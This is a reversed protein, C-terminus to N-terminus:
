VAEKALNLIRYDHIAGKWIKYLVVGPLASKLAAAGFIKATSYNSATAKLAVKKMYEEDNRVSNYLDAEKQEVKKLAEKRLSNETFIDLDEKSRSCIVETATSRRISNCTTLQSEYEAKAQIYNSEAQLKAASNTVNVAVASDGSGVAVSTADEKVNKMAAKFSEMKIKAQDAATKATLYSPDKALKQEVLMAEKAKIDAIKKNSELLADMAEEREGGLADDVVEGVKNAIDKNYSRKMDFAIDLGAFTCVGGIVWKLIDFNMM